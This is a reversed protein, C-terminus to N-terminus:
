LTKAKGGHLAKMYLAHGLVFAIGETACLDALGYWTFMGEVAVGLDERYPTIVRLFAEPPTPLNKHVLVTGAQDLICVSMARAPLDIGCSPKHQHTYFRM